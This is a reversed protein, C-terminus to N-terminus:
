GANPGKTQTYDYFGRGSKIGWDGAQVQRKQLMSPQLRPPRGLGEYISCSVAYNVDNGILDMLRFPGMKFGSAEMIRDITEFSAIGQAALYLSELYFPRAIRNVIFGPADQCIVATKGLHAALSLVQDLTAQSTRSTRVIEVLRMVPAPNFFHLGVVREPHIRERALNSVSLSSTNTTLIAQDSNVEELQDFLKKKSDMEEIIAEMVFDAKCDEVRHTFRLRRLTSDKQSLTMRSKEVNQQLRDAISASAKHIAEESLDFLVTAFGSQAAAQAIGAGMTGAGCVCVTTQMGHRLEFPASTSSAKKM